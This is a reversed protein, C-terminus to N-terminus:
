FSRKFNKLFFLIQYDISNNWYQGDHRGPRVIYDHNIGKALLKDHLANNVAFFFDDYGCDVIIALDGNKIKDLQNIVTYEDWLAENQAKEGLQKKMEWNNPFPRIDVGGSTSGGAGFIDKHRFSLWLAGHGGMSLGTIARANRNKITPYKSDVWATLETSVYTEFRYASDKPSDWYWSNKGDPCVFIVNEKDAYNKLEPKIDLWSRSNGGYGHLLYIVACPKSSNADDPVVLRVPLDRKMATSHVMVDDVRAANISFVSLLFFFLVFNRM